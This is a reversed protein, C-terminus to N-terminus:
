GPMSIQRTHHTIKSRRFALMKTRLHIRREPLAVGAKRYKTFCFATIRDILSGLSRTFSNDDRRVLFARKFATVFLPGIHLTEIYPMFNHRYAEDSKWRAVLDSPSIIQNKVKERDIEIWVAGSCEDVYPVFTNWCSLPFKEEYSEYDFRDFDFLSVGGLKRGYSCFEEGGLAKWRSPNPNPAPSIEGTTLINKFNDPPTTHWLRGLLVQLILERTV